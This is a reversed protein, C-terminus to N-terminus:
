NGQLSVALSLTQGDRQLDFVAEEASRMTQYLRMTNSPDSLPMGNVATVLDGPMFGLLQFQEHHKGPAVRYGLLQGGERVASVRVVDALSGPDEYLQQRYSSALSSAVAADTANAPQAPRQRVAGGASPSSSRQAADLASDDFLTLLEYTGANDLVVQKPMVKALVVKGAVPLEDDVAYVQQQSRHEIIAHGLGDETSALIGRLQLNLRTERAGREIGDRESSSPQSIVPTEPESAAAGFLQWQAFRSTDVAAAAASSNRQTLPNVVRNAPVEATTPQPLLSWLLQAVALVMWLVLLACIGWKLRRQWLPQSLVRSSSRLAAAFRQLLASNSLASGSLGSRHTLWPAPM